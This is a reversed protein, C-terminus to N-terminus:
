KAFGGIPYSEIYTPLYSTDYTLIYPIYTSGIFTPLANRIVALRKKDNKLNETAKKTRGWAVWTV